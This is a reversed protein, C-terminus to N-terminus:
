SLSDTFYKMYVILIVKQINAVTVRENLAVLDFSHCKQKISAALRADGCGM